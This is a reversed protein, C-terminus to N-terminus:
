PFARSNYLAVSHHSFVWKASVVNEGKRQLADGIVCYDSAEATFVQRASRGGPPQWFRAGEIVRAAATKKVM